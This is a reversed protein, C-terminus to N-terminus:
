DERTVGFRKVNNYVSQRSMGCVAAIQSVTMDSNKYLQLATEVNDSDLRPRGSKIGKARAIAQGEARRENILDREFEAFAATMTFFLKGQPTNTDIKEKLSVLNIGDKKFREALQLLQTTSRALRDFSSVVVTDGERLMKLLEDLAPRSAKAGSVKDIFMNDMAVGYDTLAAVQRDIHQSVTSVRVYGFVKSVAM